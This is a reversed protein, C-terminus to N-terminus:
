VDRPNWLIPTKNEYDWDSWQLIRALRGQLLADSPTLKAYEFAEEVREWSFSPTVPCKFPGKGREGVGKSLWEAARAEGLGPCGPYNDTRDGVLTQLYHNDRAVEKPVWVAMADSNKYHWGPVTLMDKDQSCMIMRPGPAFGHDIGSPKTGLIGLCDDAEIHPYSKCPFEKDLRVRLEAYCLPKRPSRGAKYGEWLDERFYPRQGGFCLISQGADLREETQRVMRIFNDYAENENAYLVHNQEDWRIEREVAVCAKFLYEDGDILLIDKSAVTTSGQWAKTPPSNTGM